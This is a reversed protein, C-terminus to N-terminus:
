LVLREIHKAAEEVSLNTIDLKYTDLKQYMSLRILSNQLAEPKRIEHDIDNQIRKTLAEDDCVLSINVLQCETMDLQSLVDDIISQEHMVWCFIIYEYASCHIYNNLIHTINDLVMTKTEENVMFPNMDWCWDGDLFATKDLRRKLCQSITTKGVGMTGGIMILKKM